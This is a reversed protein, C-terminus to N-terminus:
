TATKIEWALKKNLAMMAEQFLGVIAEKRCNEILIPSKIGILDGRRLIGKAEYEFVTKQIIKIKPFFIL